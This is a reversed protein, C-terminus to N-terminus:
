RFRIGARKSSRKKQKKFYHNIAERITQIVLKACHQGENPLGNLSCIIDEHMLDYAEDLTKGEALEAGVSACAASNPCGSTLFRAQVIRENKLKFYIEITDGCPGTVKAFTDADPIAGRNKPRLWREIVETAIAEHEGHGKRHQFFAEVFKLVKPADEKPANLKKADELIDAVTKGEKLAAITLLLALPRIGKPGHIYIPYKEEDFVTQYFMSLKDESLGDGKVPLHIYRVGMSQVLRPEDPNSIEEGTRLDVVTKFGKQALDKIGADDPIGGVFINKNFEIFFM